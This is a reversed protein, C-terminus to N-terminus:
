DKLFKENWFLQGHFSQSFLIDKFHSRDAGIATKLWWIWLIRRQRKLAYIVDMTTVTKRKAHRTYTVANRIVNELFVKLVERTENDNTSVHLMFSNKLITPLPSIRCLITYM